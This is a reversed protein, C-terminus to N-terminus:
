PFFFDFPIKFVVAYLSYDANLKHQKWTEFDNGELMMNAKKDLLEMMVRQRHTSFISMILYREQQARYDSIGFLGCFTQNIQLPMKPLDNSMVMM